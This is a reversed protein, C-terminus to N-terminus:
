ETIQRAKTQGSAAQLEGKEQDGPAIGELGETPGFGAKTDGTDIALVQAGAGDGILTTIDRFQIGPKPFDPVTRVLAKLEDHSLNTASM